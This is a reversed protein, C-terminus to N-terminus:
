NAGRRAATQRYTLMYSHVPQGENDQYYPSGFMLSDEELWHVMTDRICVLGNVFTGNTSGYRGENDKDVRLTGYDCFLMQDGSFIILGHERSVTRELIQLDQSPHRGVRVVHFRGRDSFDYLQITRIPDYQPDTLTIQESARESINESAVTENAWDLFRQKSSSEKTQGTEVRTERLISLTVEVSATIGPEPSKADAHQELHGLIEDKTALGAKILEILNKGITTQGVPMWYILYHNSPPKRKHLRGPSLIM